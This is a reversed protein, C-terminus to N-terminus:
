SSCVTRISVLSVYPLLPCARSFLRDLDFQAITNSRLVNGRGLGRNLSKLLDVTWIEDCASIVSRWIANSWFFTDNLNVLLMEIHWVNYLLVHRHCSVFKNVWCREFSSIDREVLLACYCFNIKGVQVIPTLPLVENNRGDTKFTWISSKTLINSYKQTYLFLFFLHTTLFLESSLRFSYKM